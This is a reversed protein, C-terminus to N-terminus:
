QFFFRRFFDLSNISFFDISFSQSFYRLYASKYLIFIELRYYLKFKLNLMMLFWPLCTKNLNQREIKNIRSLLRVIRRIDPHITTFDSFPYGDFFPYRIDTLVRFLVIRRVSPYGNFRNDLGVM